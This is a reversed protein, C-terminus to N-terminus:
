SCGRKGFVARYQINPWKMALDAAVTGYVVVSSLSASSSFWPVVGAVRSGPDETVGEDGLRSSSSWRRPPGSVVEPSGDM